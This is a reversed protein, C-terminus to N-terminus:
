LFDEKGESDASTCGTNNQRETYDSADTIAFGLDRAAKATDLSGILDIHHKAFASALINLRSKDYVSIFATGM